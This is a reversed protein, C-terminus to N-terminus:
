RSDITSESRYTKKRVWFGFRIKKLITCASRIAGERGFSAPVCTIDSKGARWFAHIEESHSSPVECSLRSYKM